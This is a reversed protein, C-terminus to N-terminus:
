GNRAFRILVARIVQARALGNEEAMRDFYDVVEKPLRVEVKQGTSPRGRPRKVVDMRGM